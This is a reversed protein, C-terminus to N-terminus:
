GHAGDQSHSKYERTVLTSLEIKCRRFTINTQMKRGKSTEQRQGTYERRERERQGGGKERQARRKSFYEQTVPERGDSKNNGQRNRSGKKPRTKPRMVNKVNEGRCNISTSVLAEAPKVIAIKERTSASASAV